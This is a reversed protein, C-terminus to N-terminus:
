DGKIGSCTPRTLYQQESDVLFVGQLYNRGILMHYKFGEREALNVEVDRYVSGICIGLRVVPRRTSPAMKRKISAYRIVQRDLEVTHDHRDEIRFSVWPKGDREYTDLIKAKISSTDAGTDVKAELRMKAEGIHAQELWGIVQKDALAIPAYASLLTVMCITPYIAAMRM